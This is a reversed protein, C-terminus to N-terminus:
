DMARGTLSDPSTDHDGTYVVCDLDPREEQVAKVTCWLVREGGGRDNTYPHFFGIAGRRKYRVIAIRHYKTSSIRAPWCTTDSSGYDLFPSTNNTHSKSKKMRQINSYIVDISLNDQSSFFQTTMPLRPCSFIGCADGRALADRIGPPVRVPTGWHTFHM